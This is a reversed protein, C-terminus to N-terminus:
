FQLAIYMMFSVCDIAIFTAGRVAARVTPQLWDVNATTVELVPVRTFLAAMVIFDKV